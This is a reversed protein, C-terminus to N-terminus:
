KILKVVKSGIVLTYIGKAIHSTSITNKGSVVDVKLVAQGFASYLTATTDAEAEIVVYDAFPNPYVNVSYSQDEISVSSKKTYKIYLNSDEAVATLESGDESTLWVSTYGIQEVEPLAGNTYVVSTEENINNTYTVQYVSKGDLVPLADTGIEQGFEDGLLWAIKGSAFDETTVVNAADKFDGALTHCNDLVGIADGNISGVKNTSSLSVTGTNYLNKLVAEGSASGVIGGVYMTVGTINGTNFSNSITTERSTSAIGGAYNGTSTINGTNSCRNIIGGSSQAWSAVGGAYAGEIDGTNHCDEIVFDVFASYALVGAVFQKASVSAENRCNIIKSTGASYAIIGAVYNNTSKVEGRVTLNKITAANIYGFLGQYTTTVNIYLGNVAHGGGDFTGKYQYAATSNGIRTWDFNALDIDNTMIASITNGGTNVKNAFWALEYGSSIKYYGAMGEFQGGATASEEASVTIPETTTVGDWSTADLAEMNAAITQVKESESSISFTQRRKKYGPATIEYTYTGYSVTYTDKASFAVEEGKKNIVKLVSGEPLDSFNVTYYDIDHIKISVSPISGFYTKHAIATFNPFRGSDLSTNRHNGIPDGFGNVQLVGETFTMEEETNWDTPVTVSITQAKESSAFTYQNPGLILATGNPAGNYFLYASMNYIGALKNAPHFLGDFVVSIEDGPQINENPNSLNRVECKAKKATFVQYESQGSASTLKVINRGHILKVTYSGNAHATVGNSSFGSYTAASEGVVPYAISVSSVGTPTFTYDYGNDDVYYFVDHEADVNIGAIKKTDVNLQENVIINPVIGSESGGVTVVFTGTNEPWIAGFYPGGMYPSFTGNSFTNLNIADYTVLVIATGESKASVVGKADIDVVSNDVVGNENIVTYHFDPEIFYNNTSNDTLQWTRMSLMRHQGGNALKLHGKENINLFIDGVNYGSNSKPNHDIRKPSDSNLMNSTIEIPALTSSMSFYGGQTLKGVQSVRYNYVQGIALKFKYTEKGGEKVSSLPSIERFSVFHAFKKGIFLTANEPVIVSYEAGMPIAAQTGTNATVTVSTEFPLYGEATRVESPVLSLAYSDGAFVMFTIRNAVSYSGPTTTREVGERSIVRYEVTYDSNLIWGSNTAGAYITRIGYSQTAEDTITLQITGNSITGNTQWASLTYTGPDAQFTFAHASSKDGVEVLQQTLNNKLEIKQSLANMTLTVDAASLNLIAIYIFVISLYLKKM